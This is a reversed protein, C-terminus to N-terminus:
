PTEFSTKSFSREDAQMLAADGSSAVLSTLSVPFETPVPPSIDESTTPKAFKMRSDAGATGIAKDAEACFPAASNLETPHSRHWEDLRVVPGDRNVPIDFMM